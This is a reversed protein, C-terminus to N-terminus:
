KSQLQITCWAISPHMAPSARLEAETVGELALYQEIDNITAGKSVMIGVNARIKAIQDPSAYAAWGRVCREFPSMYWNFLSVSVAAVIAAIAIGQSLNM